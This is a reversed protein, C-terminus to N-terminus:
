SASSQGGLTVRNKGGTKSLYLAQDAQRYLEEFPTHPDEWYIVGISVTLQIRRGGDLMVHHPALMRRITEAQELAATESAAPVCVAFEEGGLRGAVAGNRGIHKIKRAFSVLAQDGALHGYTDNVQKFDDIDMLLMAKGAEGQGSWSKLAKLFHRRNSLGTLDDVSAQYELEREYRKENSYDRLTMLMVAKGRAEELPILSLGWWYDEQDASKFRIEGGRRQLYCDQVGPYEKLYPLISRGTWSGSVPGFIRNMMREGASDISVVSDNEGIVVVGQNAGEVWSNTAPPAMSLQPHRYVTLYIVAVAPLLAVATFGTLTIHLVPLAFISGSSFVMGAILPLQARWKHKPLHRLSLVFLFIGYLSLIQSYAILAMSLLTPHVTIGTVGAVTEMGIGSRMWHHYSDTFILVNDLLLPASLLWLKGRSPMYSPSIYNRIAAYAFLNIFFLPIQQVNRLWLKLEYLPTMIEASTATLAFGILLLLIWLYRRGPVRRLRWATVGMYLSVIGGLLLYYPYGKMWPM